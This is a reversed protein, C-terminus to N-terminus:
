LIFHCSFHHEMNIKNTTLRAGCLIVIETHTQPLKLQLGLKPLATKPIERGSTKPNQSYNSFGSSGSRLGFQHYCSGFYSFRVFSIV